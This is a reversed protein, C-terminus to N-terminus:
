ARGLATKLADLRGARLDARIPALDVPQQLLKTFAKASGPPGVNEVRLPWDVKSSLCRM